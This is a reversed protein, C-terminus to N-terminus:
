ATHVDRQWAHLATAKMHAIARVGPALRLADASQRTLLASLTTGPAVRLRARVLPGAPVLADVTVEIRNRASLELATDAASVMVDEPRYAVVAGAGLVAATAASWTVWLLTDGHLRLAVLNADVQEVTGHLLLEAGTLEAVFPSRPRLLVEDPMGEQVCRGDQLVLIRDAVGFADAPDHTILIIGKAHQRAVGEIDQRFQRRVSVDLNAMPEDLLLVDPRTVLARALATRQAEGGSLSHVSADLQPVLGLAAAAHEARLRAEAGSEGRAHLGFEINDRVTGSFLIPRQFVGAMRRRAAADDARMEAGDLYLTGSDARELQLLIRFLTSKGAGNPGVVALVEGARVDVLDLDLVTRTGYTRRLAVGRLLPTVM